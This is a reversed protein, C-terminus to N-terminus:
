IYAALFIKEGTGPFLVTRKGAILCIANHPIGRLSDADIIDYSAMGQPLGEAVM